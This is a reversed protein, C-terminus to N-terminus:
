VVGFAEVPLDEGLVRLLGLCLPQQTQQSKLATRWVVGFPEEPAGGGRRRVAGLGLIIEGDYQVGEFAVLLGEDGEAPRYVEVGAVIGEQDIEAIQQKCGPSLTIGDRCKPASYGQVRRMDAGMAMEAGFQELKAIRARRQVM